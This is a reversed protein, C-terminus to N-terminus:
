AVKELDVEFQDAFDAEFDLPDPVSESESLASQSTPPQLAVVKNGNGSVWSILWSFLSALPIQRAMAQALKHEYIVGNAVINLETASLKNVDVQRGLVREAQSKLYDEIHSEIRLRKNEAM